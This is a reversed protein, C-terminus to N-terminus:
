VIKSFGKIFHGYYRAMGIFSKIGRVDKMAKWNLIDKVKKPDVALGDKNIIHGL